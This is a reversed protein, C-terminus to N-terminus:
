FQSIASRSQVDYFWVLNNFLGILLSSFVWSGLARSFARSWTTILNLKEGSQNLSYLLNESGIMSRPLAFGFCDLPTCIDACFVVCIRIESM